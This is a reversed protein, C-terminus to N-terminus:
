RDNNEGNEGERKEIAHLTSFYKKLAHFEQSSLKRLTDSYQNNLDAVGGKPRKEYTRHPNIEGDIINDIRWLEKESSTAGSTINSACNAKTSLPRM